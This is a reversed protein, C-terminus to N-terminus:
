NRRSGRRERYAPRQFIRSGNAPPRPRSASRPAPITACGSWPPSRTRPMGAPSGWSSSRWCACRTRSTISSSSWSRSRGCTRAAGDRVPAAIARGIPSEGQKEAMLIIDPVFIAGQPGFRQIARLAARRVESKDDRLARALHPRVVEADLELSGLTSTAAERVEVQEAGLLSTLRDFAPQAAKGMKGLTQAAITRIKPAPDDLLATLAPVAEAAAQGHSGILEAAALRVEPNTVREVQRHRGAAVKRGPPGLSRLTDIAQRQVRPDADDLLPWSTASCACRRAARSELSSRSRRSGSRPPDTTSCACARGARCEGARPGLYGIATLFRGQGRPRPRALGATLKQATGPPRPSDTGAGPGCRTPRSAGPANVAQTLLGVVPRGIQALAEAIQDIRSSEQRSPTSCDRPPRGAGLKGLLFAAHRSVGDNKATLLSELEPALRALLARRGVLLNVVALRVREDEHGSTRRSSRCSWSM